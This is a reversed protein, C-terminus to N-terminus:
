SREVRARLGDLASRYSESLGQAFETAQGPDETEFTASWDVRSGGSDPTVSLRSRYTSLPLVGDVFEYEYVRDDDSHSVIREAVHGGGDALTITRVDGEVTCEGVAPIWEAIGGTDGAVKWVEDPSAAVTLSEHIDM